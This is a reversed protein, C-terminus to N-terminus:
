RECLWSLAYNHAVSLWNEFLYADVLGRKLVKHQFVRAIQKFNILMFVFSIFKHRMFNSKIGFLLQGNKDIIKFSSVLMMIKNRSKKECAFIIRCTSPVNLRNYKVLSYKGVQRFNFVNRKLVHQMEVCYSKLSKM